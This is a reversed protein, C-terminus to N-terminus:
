QSAMKAAPNEQQIRAMLEDAGQMNGRQQEYWYRNLLLGSQRWTELESSWRSFYSGDPNAEARYLKEVLSLFRRSELTMRGREAAMRELVPRDATIIPSGSWLPVLASVPSLYRCFIGAPHREVIDMARKAYDRHGLGLVIADVDFPAGAVLGMVSVDTSIELQWLTSRDFVSGFTKAIALFDPEALQYMPLWLVFVGGPGLHDRVAEFHDRTYLYVAGEYWPTFLDSVVIDFRDRSMRLYQRGDAVHPHVRPVSLVDLNFSSFYRSAADRVEPILEVLDISDASAALFGSASIGTGIGIMLIRKASPRLLTPIIGMRQTGQVNDRGAELQYNDNLWLTRGHEPYDVVSVIGYAGESTAVVRGLPASTPNWPDTPNSVPHDLPGGFVAIVLCLIAIPVRLQLHELLLMTLAMGIMVVVATVWMGFHPLLVFSAVLAGMGCGLSNAALLNGVVTPSPVNEDTTPAYRLLFPFIFSPFLYGVGAIPLVTTLAGSFGRVEAPAIRLDSTLGLFCSVSGIVGLVSLVLVAHLAGHGHFWSPPLRPTVLSASTVLTVVVLSTAGFAYISSDGAIAVFRVFLVELVLALFGCGFALASYRKQFPATAPSKSSSPSPLPSSFLFYLSALNIVTAVVSTARYGIAYPLVFSGACVGAAAGAAHLGYLAIFRPASIAPAVIPFFAGWLFCVPFLAVMAVVFRAVEYSSSGFTSTLMAHGVDACIRPLVFSLVIAFGFLAALQRRDRAAVWRFRLAGLASGVFYVFLVVGYSAPTAGFLVLEEKLWVTEALLVGLGHLVFFLVLHVM